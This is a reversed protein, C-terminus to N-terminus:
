HRTDPTRKVLVRFETFPEADDATTTGFNGTSPDMPQGLPDCSAHGAARTGTNDATVDEDGHLNPYSWVTGIGCSNCCDAGSSKM